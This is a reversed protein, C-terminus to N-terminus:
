IYSKGYLDANSDGYSKSCLRNGMRYSDAGIIFQVYNLKRPFMMKEKRKPELAGLQIRIRIRARDAAETALNLMAGMLHCCGKCTAM